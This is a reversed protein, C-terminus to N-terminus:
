GADRQMLGQRRLEKEAERTAESLKLAHRTVVQGNVTVTRYGTSDGIITGVVEGDLLIEWDAPQQGFGNGRWARGRLKRLRITM